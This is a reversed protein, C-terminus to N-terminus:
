RYGVGMIYDRLWSIEYSADAILARLADRAEMVGTAKSQADIVPLHVLSHTRMLRLVDELTDGPRCYIVERTMAEAAATTAATAAGQGLQRVIDTKTIVGAMARDPGCVVVLSAPTEALLKGVEPLLTDPRTTVLRRRTVADISEVLVADM